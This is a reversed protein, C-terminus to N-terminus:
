SSVVQMARDFKHPGAYSSGRWSGAAGAKAFAEGVERLGRQAEGDSFLQDQENHLVMTPLPCRAAVVDPVDLWRGLAAV